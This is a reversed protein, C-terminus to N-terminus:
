IPRAEIAYTAGPSLCRIDNVRFGSSALLTRLQRESRTRGGRQAVVGLSVLARWPPVPTGPMYVGELVLLRGSDNMASRCRTLIQRAEDDRWNNLIQALLYLDGGAPVSELFNGAILECRDSLGAEEIRRRARDIAGPLELLRAAVHANQQLIQIMLAGEGGGVDVLQRVHSFDCVAALEAYRSPTNRSMTDYFFAAIEPHESLYQYFPMGYVHDFAVGGTKAMHMLGDMPRYIMEFFVGAEGAFTGASSKTLLKGMRSLSFRQQGDVQLVDFATLGRLITELTWPDSSTEAVLQELSQPGAQLIEPIGLQVAVHMAQGIAGGWILEWLRERDQTDDEEAM